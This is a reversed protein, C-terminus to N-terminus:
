PTSAPMLVKELCKTHCDYLTQVDVVPSPAPRRVGKEDVFQDDINGKSWERKLGTHAAATSSVPKRMLVKSDKSNTNRFEAQDEIKIKPSTQIKIYQNSSGADPGLIEDAAKLLAEEDVEISSIMM